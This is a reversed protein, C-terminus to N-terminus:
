WLSRPKKTTVPSSSAKEGQDSQKSDTPADNVAGKTKSEKERFVKSSFSKFSM